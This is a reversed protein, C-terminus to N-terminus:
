VEMHKEIVRLQREIAIWHQGKRNKNAHDQAIRLNDRTNLHEGELVSDPVKENSDLYTLLGSPQLLLCHMYTCLVNKDSKLKVDVVNSPIATHYISNAYKEDNKM